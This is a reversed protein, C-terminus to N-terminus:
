AMNLYGGFASPKHPNAPINWSNLVGTKGTFSAYKGTSGVILIPVTQRTQKGHHTVSAVGLIFHISGQSNSLSADGSQVTTGSVTVSGSGAFRDTGVRGTLDPIVQTSGDISTHGRFTAPISGSSRSMVPAHTHPSAVSLVASLTLRGELAEVGLTRNQRRRIENM